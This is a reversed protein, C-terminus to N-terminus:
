APECGALVYDLRVGIWTVNCIRRKPENPTLPSGCCQHISTLEVRPRRMLDALTLRVPRQVLGDITLSWADPDIQPVGLHCLVIADETRTVRDTLQHPQLPHRGYPTAPDLRARTMPPLCTMALRRTIDPADVCLRWEPEDRRKGKREAIRGCHSRRGVACFTNAHAM